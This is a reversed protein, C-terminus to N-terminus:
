REIRVESSESWDNHGGSIVIFRATPIQRALTRAHEIPIITDDKAGIIEVPGSYGKLSEANDWADRLLLRVPLFFFHQAAVAALSDFPVVLMIKDPAPKERALACAPGSGLSEGLVCVPTNPNRARLIQYAEVAAQNISERSPSGERLGYGPYELVYLSDRPSMRRLVYDRHAAQGGNGHTMLWIARANAVERCYGIIRGGETWPRLGSFGADRTPFYLLARQRFYIIVVVVVYLVSLIGVIRVRPKIM